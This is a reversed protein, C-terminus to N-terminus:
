KKDDSRDASLRGKHLDKWMARQEETLVKEIATHEEHHLKKVEAHLTKVKTDYDAHLKRFQDKQEATVGLQEGVAKLHERRSVSNRWFRHEERLVLPLKDRQEENLEARIASVEKHRLEHFQKHVKEGKDKAAALDQFKPGYDARIADIKSKQEDSLKLVTVAKQFEQDALLRLAAPAKARQEATLVQKMAEHEEHHLVGLQHEVPDAKADFEAHIKRIEQKQKDDLKLKVALRELHDHKTIPEGPEAAHFRGGSAVMALTAAVLLALRFRVMTM